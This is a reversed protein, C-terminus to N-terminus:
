NLYTKKVSLQFKAEVKKRDARKKTDYSFPIFYNEEYPYLNFASALIQQITQETEKDEIKDLTKTAIEKAIKKEEDFYTRSSNKEKLAIEKYIELANKYDGNKEFVDAKKYLMDLQENAFLPIFFLLSFIIKDIQKM